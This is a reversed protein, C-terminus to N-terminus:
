TNIDAAKKWSVVDGLSRKQNDLGGYVLFGKGGVTKDWYNLGKFFDSNVTHGSKIEVPVLTGEHELICDVENGMRDRWFSCNPMKGANLRKKLFESMVFSEFLHGKIYHTDLQDVSEIRLLSCALGADYFYLKPSKVLRKSVNNYYPPLLYILYSAELLSLWSKVTNASVGADRSLDAYSILQGIRGACLRIFKQFTGLDTVHQIQRVDREVYTRIYEPYWDLPDFDDAHIRPYSGQFVIEEWRDPLNPIEQCSLPLLTLIATRGALTQSIQGSLLFNQSGTLIFQGPTKNHDVWDQIYSLLRPVHQVEDLICGGKGAYKKLFEDPDSEAYEREEYRELNVYQHKAFVEKVLTTKGVQRPGLVSVVPFKGALYKLRQEMERKIM